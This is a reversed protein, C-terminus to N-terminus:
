DIPAFILLVGVRIRSLGQIKAKKYPFLVEIYIVKGSPYLVKL